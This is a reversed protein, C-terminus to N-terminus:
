SSLDTMVYYYIHMRMALDTVPVLYTAYLIDIGKRKLKIFPSCKDM